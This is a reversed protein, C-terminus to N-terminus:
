IGRRPLTLLAKRVVGRPAARLGFNWDRLYGAGILAREIIKQIRRPAREIDRRLLLDTLDLKGRLTRVLGRMIKPTPMVGRKGLECMNLMSSSWGAKLSVEVVGRDQHLREARLLIGLRKM